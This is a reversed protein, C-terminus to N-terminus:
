AGREVRGRVHWTGGSERDISLVRFRSGPSLIVEGESDVDPPVFVAPHGAPVELTLLVRGDAFRRGVVEDHSASLFGKEELVKGALTTLAAEGGPFASFSSGRTLVLPEPLPRMAGSLDDITARLDQEWEPDPKGSLAGHRLLNNIQRYEYDTYREVAKREAETWPDNRTMRDAVDQAERNGHIKRFQGGEEQASAAKEGFRGGWGRPHLREFEPRLAATIADQVPVAFSAAIASEVFRAEIPYDMRMREIGPTVNM